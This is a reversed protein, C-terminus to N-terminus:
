LLDDKTEIVISPIPQSVHSKVPIDENWARIIMECHCNKGNIIRPSNSDNLQCECEVENIKIADQIKKQIYQNGLITQIIGV